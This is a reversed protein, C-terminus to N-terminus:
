NKKFFFPFGGTLSILLPFNVTLKENMGKPQRAAPGFPRPGLRTMEARFFATNSSSRNRGLNPAATEAFNHSFGDVRDTTKKTQRNKLKKKLKKQFFNFFRGDFFDPSPFQRNENMGKPQRAAPGGLRSVIGKMEAKFFPTNQSQSKQGLKQADPISSNQWSKPFGTM